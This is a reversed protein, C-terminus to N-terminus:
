PGGYDVVEYVGEESSCGVVVDNDILLGVIQLLLSAFPIKYISDKVKKKTQKKKKVGPRGKPYTLMIRAATCEVTPSALM